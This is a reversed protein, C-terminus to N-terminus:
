KNFHYDDLNDFYKDVERNTGTNTTPETDGTTKQMRLEDKYQKFDELMDDTVTMPQIFKPQRELIQKNQIKMRALIKEAERDAFRREKRSLM